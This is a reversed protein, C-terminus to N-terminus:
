KTPRILRSRADVRNLRPPNNGSTVVVPEAVAVAQVLGRKALAAADAVDDDTVAMKHRLFGAVRSRFTPLKEDPINESATSVIWKQRDSLIM